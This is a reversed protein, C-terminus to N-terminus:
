LEAPKSLLELAELLREAQGALSLHETAAMQRLRELAPVRALSYRHM